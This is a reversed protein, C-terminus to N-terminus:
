FSFSPAAAGTLTALRSSLGSTLNALGEENNLYRLYRHHRLDFPVDSDHQAIPVVHKGLTHAIGCEYFVNPNKGTFDCIVINARFILSFIDQIVTSHQWIDDVRQCKLSRATAAAKIAKYVPKLDAEFPMMVAVLSPDVPEPPAEFVSPTFYVRRGLEISSVSEGGPAFRASVYDEIRKLNAPDRGVMSLLVSMVHGAYDEDGFSLSRLLRSHSQVVDLTGTLAGLDLWNESTFHAAIREKLPLLSKQQDPDLFM